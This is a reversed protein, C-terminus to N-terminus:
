GREAPRTAGLPAYSGPRHGEVVPSAPHAAHLDFGSDLRRVDVTRSEVDVELEAVTVFRFDRESKQISVYEFLVRRSPLSAAYRLLRSRFLEPNSGYYKLTTFISALCVFEGVHDYRFGSRWNRKGFAGYEEREGSERDVLYIRAFFNIVDVSFVRWLIIGFFNSYREVANQLPRPLTKRGLLNEFLSAHVFPLVVVYAVFLGALTHGAWLPLVFDLAGKSPLELLGAIWRDDVFLVTALMMMECLFGLRIHTAIFLFSVLILFAGLLQAGPVLMLLGAAIETSWALHNLLRFVGHSPSLSQYSRWWYGWWPNVLGYEMGENEAYGAVLKYLGASLLIYAFDVRFALLVAAPFLSGTSDSGSLELFFVAAGLWYTLFGPAGMGRLVGKWRMHIFFYRCLLLNLLASALAAVDLVLGLASAIWVLMLFPLVAPRQIRDIWPSGEAYGGFRESQFFRRAQPLAMLLTLLLLVGYGLEFLRLLAPALVIRSEPAAATRFAAWLTLPLALAFLLGAARLKWRPSPPSV